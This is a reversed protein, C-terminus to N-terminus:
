CCGTALAQASPGSRRAAGLDVLAGTCELVARGVKVVERARTADM